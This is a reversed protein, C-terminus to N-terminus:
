YSFLGKFNDACKEVSLNELVYERPKYIDLKNIFENYKTEFEEKKYFFEGCRQDWYPISTAEINPFNSVEEQNMSSVNWVLLPVNCSLAEEIAFNDPPNMVYSAISEDIWKQDDRIPLSSESGPVQKVLVAIKM